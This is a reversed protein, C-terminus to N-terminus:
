GLLPWSRGLVPWSGGLLAGLAAWSRGLGDWSYGLLTGLAALLAGLYGWSAGLLGLAVVAVILCSFCFRFALLLLCFTFFCCILASLEFLIM